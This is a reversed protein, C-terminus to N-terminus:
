KEAQGAGKWGVLDMGLRNRGKGAQEVREWDTGEKGLRYWGDCGTGGKRAQGMWKWGTGGKEAQEIGERRM